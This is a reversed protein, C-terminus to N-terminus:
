PHLSPITGRMRVHHLGVPDVYTIYHVLRDITFRLVGREASRELFLGAISCLRSAHSIRLDLRLCFNCPEIEGASGRRTVWGPRTRTRGFM